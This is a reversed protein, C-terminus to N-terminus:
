RRLVPLADTRGRSTRPRSGDRGECVDLLIQGAFLGAAVAAMRQRLAFIQDFDEAVPADVVVRLDDRVVRV